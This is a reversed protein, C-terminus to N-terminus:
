RGHFVPKQRARFAALANAADESDLVHNVRTMLDYQVQMPADGIADLSLRKLMEIVLPANAAITHALTRAAEVHQGAPVLRNVLGVAYAREASLPDGTMMMELALRLPMRRALISVAGKAVGVRAEPYILSAGEAMVVLDCMQTLVVGAGIVKGSIAAIIPKDCRFGLEPVGQWFHEPPDTLDAGACFVDDSVSKLIAVRAPGAAFADFCRRLDAFMQATLANKKEPRRLTIEAIGDFEAYDINDFPM